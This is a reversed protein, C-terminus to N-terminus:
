AAAKHSGLLRAAERQGTLFAAGMTGTLQRHTAEGAFCVVPRGSVTLPAALADIDDPSGAANVYSYSGRFLPDSGWASRIIRPAAAAPCPIAPYAALLAAVGREVEDDSCKEMAKAHEGTIWLVASSPHEAWPAPLGSGCHRQATKGTERSSNGYVSCASGTFAPWRAGNTAPDECAAAPQQSDQVAAHGNSPAKFESGGFRVSFVGRAWEPVAQEAPAPEHAESKQWPEQWLLHYATVPDGSAQKGPPAGGTESFDVFIKDVTGISLGQLARLKEPPLSPAFLQAHIAKLVGLSVTVVAADAQFSRGDACSVTVGSAGWQIREVVAGYRIDAGAAMHEALAHPLAPHQSTAQFGIPCPFNPGELDEAGAWWAASVDASSDCGSAIRTVLERWRWARPRVEAGSSKADEKIIRQELLSSLSGSHSAPDGSPLVSAYEQVAERLEESIARDLPAPEGPECFGWRFDRTFPPGVIGHQSAYEYLPHGYIGHFYTGGMERGDLTCARGGIGAYGAGVIIVESPKKVDGTM